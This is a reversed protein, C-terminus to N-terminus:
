IRRLLFMKGDKHKLYIGISGDGNEKMYATYGGVLRYTGYFGDKDPEYFLPIDGCSCGGMALDMLTLSKAKEIFKDALFMKQVPTLRKHGNLPGVLKAWSKLLMPHNPKLRKVVDEGITRFHDKYFSLHQKYCKKKGV